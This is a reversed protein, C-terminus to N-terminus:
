LKQESVSGLWDRFQLESEQRMFEVHREIADHDFNGDVEREREYVSKAWDLLQEPTMSQMIKKPDLATKNVFAEVWRLLEAKDHETEQRGTDQLEM